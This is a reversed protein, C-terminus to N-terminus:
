EIRIFTWLNCAKTEGAEHKRRFRWARGIVSKRECIESVSKREEEKETKRQREVAIKIGRKQRRSWLRGDNGEDMGGEVRNNGLFANKGNWKGHM